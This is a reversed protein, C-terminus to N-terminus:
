DIGKSMLLPLTLVVLRGDPARDFRIPEPKPVLNETYRSPLLPTLLV